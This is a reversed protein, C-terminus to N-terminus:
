GKKPPQDALEPEGESSHTQSLPNLQCSEMNALLQIVTELHPVSQLGREIHADLSSIVRPMQELVQGTNKITSAKALLNKPLKILHAVGSWIMWPEWELYLYCLWRRESEERSSSRGSGSTTTSGSVSAM